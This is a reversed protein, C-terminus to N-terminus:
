VEDDENIDISQDIIYEGMFVMEGEPVFIQALEIIEKSFITTYESSSTYVTGSQIRNCGVVSYRGPKANLLYVQDGAKYNSQICYEANYLDQDNELRIFYVMDISQSGFISVPPLTRVIIGIAGRHSDILKTPPLTGACGFLTFLILIFLLSISKSM